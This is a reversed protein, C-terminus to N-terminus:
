KIIPEIFFLLDYESFLNEDYNGRLNFYLIDGEIKRPRDGFHKAISRLFFMKNELKSFNVKHTYM